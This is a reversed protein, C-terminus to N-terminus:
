VRPTAFDLEHRSCSLCGSIRLILCLPLGIDAALPLPFLNPKLELSGIRMLVISLM